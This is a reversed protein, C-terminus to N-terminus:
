RKAVEMLLLAAIGIVLGALAIMESRAVKRFLDNHTRNWEQQSAEAKKLEDKMGELMISLEGITTARRESM